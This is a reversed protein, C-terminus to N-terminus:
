CKYLEDFIAYILMDVNKNDFNLLPISHTKVAERMYGLSSHDIYSTVVVILDSSYIAEYNIDRCGAKFLKIDWDFKSQYEQLKTHMMDGGVVIVRKDKIANIFTSIPIQSYVKHTSLKDAIDKSKNYLASLSAIESERLDLKKTLSDIEKVRKNLQRDKEQCSSQLTSALKSLREIESELFTLEAHNEAKVLETELKSSKQKEEQLQRKLDGNEKSAVRHTIRLKELKENVKNVENQSNKLKTSTMKLDTNLRESGYCIIQNLLSLVAWSYCDNCRELMFDLSDGHEDELDFEEGVSSGHTKLYELSEYALIPGMSAAISGYPSVNTVALYTLLYRHKHDENVIGLSSPFSKMREEVIKEFLSFSEINIQNSQLTKDIADLFDDFRKSFLCLPDDGISDEIFKIVLSYDDEDTLISHIFEELTTEKTIDCCRLQGLHESGYIEDYFCRTNGTTVRLKMMWFYILYVQINFINPVRSTEDRLICISELFDNAIINTYVNDCSFVEDWIRDIVAINRTYYLQRIIKSEFYHEEDSIITDEPEDSVIPITKEKVYPKQRSERKARQNFLKVMDLISDLPLEKGFLEVIDSKYDLSYIITLATRVDYNKNNVQINYFNDGSLEKLELIQPKFDSCKISKKRSFKRRM